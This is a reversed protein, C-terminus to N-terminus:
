NARNSILLFKQYRQLIYVPANVLAKVNNLKNADVIIYLVKTKWLSLFEQDNILYNQRKKKYLIDAALERRWNDHTQIDPDSWNYVVYVKHQLYVPLDQYYSHYSVVLADAPLNEKIYMALPKTSSLKLSSASAIATVEACMATLLIALFAAIFQKKYFSFFVSITSGCIIILALGSLYFMSVSDTLSPMRAFVLLSLSFAIGLGLLIFSVIKLNLSQPLYQWHRELYIGVILALPPFIPLIYGVIKSQPISFFVFIAVVWIALFIEVDAARKQKKIVQVLYRASQFLFLTWPLLGILVVVAYYYVPQHMNFGSTVYRSFQQVIFFYNLFEPNEKQVLIFWPTVIAVFLILGSILHMQLLTRWRWVCVIWLFIVMGPFVIGMLGKTLFALAAFIYAAFFCIHRWRSATKMAVIFCWFAGSLLVAVMLDMDAYHASLFYLFSTMLVLAALWGTRRTYLKHGACYILLCGLLGFFAPLLRVSWEHLGFTKILASECWYYLIPKDLFATGNLYPTIFNNSAVMERAIEVYRGEDPIILHYSGIFACFLLVGILTILICDSLIVKIRM